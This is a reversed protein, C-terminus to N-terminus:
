FLKVWPTLDAHLDELDPAIGTIELTRQDPPLSHKEAGEILPAHTM